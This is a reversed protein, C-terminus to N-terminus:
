ETIKQTGFLPVSAKSLTSEGDSILSVAKIGVKLSIVWYIPM